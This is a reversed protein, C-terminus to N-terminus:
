AGSGLRTVRLGDHHDYALEFGALQAYGQEDLDLVLEGGLWPDKQWAPFNNRRELENIVRDIGGHSTMMRPVPLACSAVTRAVSRTPAFDSPVVVGGSDALWPPTVLQDGRRVLVLVELSEASDDRVHARGRREDGGASEVDGVGAALWGVLSRGRSRVPGLRFAEARQRTAHAQDVSRLAAEVLTSQWTPQGVPGDGYAAQVLPAIDGPLELARGHELFPQLVAAARLLASEDYV